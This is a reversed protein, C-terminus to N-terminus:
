ELDPIIMVKLTSRTHSLSSVLVSFRQDWISCILPLVFMFTYGHVKIKLNLVPLTPVRSYSTLAWLELNIM